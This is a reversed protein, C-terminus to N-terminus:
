DEKLGDYAYGDIVNDIAIEIVEWNIGVNADFSYAVMELVKECQEVTLPEENRCDQVNQVDEVGWIDHLELENKENRVLHAM